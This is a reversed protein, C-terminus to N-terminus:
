PVIAKRRRSKGDVENSQSVNRSQARTHVVVPGAVPKADGLLLPERKRRDLRARPRNAEEAEEFKNFTSIATVTATPQMSQNSIKPIAGEMRRALEEVKTKAQRIAAYM